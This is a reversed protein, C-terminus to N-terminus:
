KSAVELVEKRLRDTILLEFIEKLPLHIRDAIALIESPDFEPIGASSDLQWAGDTDLLFFPGPSPADHRVLNPTSVVVPPGEMAGYRLTYSEGVRDTAYISIGQQQLQSLRLGAFRRSPGLLDAAVWESWAIADDLSPVRIEDIYRLGIREFGDVPAVIQRTSLAAALVRRFAQWGDYATTEVVISESGFTVSTQKNRAILKPLVVARQAGTGLEMETRQEVRPLPTFEALMEKASALTQSDLPPATPHRVEVIALVLPANPYPKTGPMGSISGM